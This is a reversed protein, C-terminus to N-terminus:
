LIQLARGLVGYQTTNEHYGAAVYADRTVLPATKLEHDRSRGKTDSASDHLLALEEQIHVNSLCEVRANRFVCLSIGLRTITTISRQENQKRPEPIFYGCLM